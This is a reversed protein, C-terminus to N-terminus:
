RGPPPHALLERETLFLVAKTVGIELLRETTM